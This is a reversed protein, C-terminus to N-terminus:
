RLRLIGRRGRVSDGRQAVVHLSDFAFRSLRLYRYATEPLPGIGRSNSLQVMRRLLDSALLGAGGAEPRVIIRSKGRRENGKAIERLLEAANM